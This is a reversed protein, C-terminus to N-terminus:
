VLIKNALMQLESAFKPDSNALEEIRKVAHMVTTHDRGGMRAAIDPFSRKTFKKCFYMAIQRPRAVSIHRRSSILDDLSIDFHAAVRKKILDVPVSKNPQPFREGIADIVVEMTAEQGVLASSAFIQKVAGEVARGTGIIRAAIIDFAEKPPSFDQRKNAFEKAKRMAIKRRLEFDPEEIRVNFGGHLIGAMRPTLGVLGEIPVDGTLAVSKSSNTLDMITQFLEEQTAPKGCILQIDDIILLDAARLGEKFQATEKDRLASQFMNLFRQASLSLIKCNPRSVKTQNAIAAVLHSKGVGNYGYFYCIESSATETAIRKALAYAVRNSTGVEFNDFTKPSHNLDIPEQTEIQELNIINQTKSFKSQSNDTRSFENQTVDSQIPAIESKNQCEVVIRRGSPDFDDWIRQLRHLYQTRIRSRAFGNAANMIIVNNDASVIKLPEIWAKFDLPGLISRLRPGLATWIARVEFLSDAESLNNEEKPETNNQNLDSQIIHLNDDHLDSIKINKSGMVLGM